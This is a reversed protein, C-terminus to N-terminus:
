WGSNQELEPNATLQSAPIPFLKHKESIPYDFKSSITDILRGTRVLDFWRHLEYALEWKREEFIANRFDDKNSFDTLTYDQPVANPDSNRARRRVQNVLDVAESTPGNMENLAEARMLLVDAYRLVYRNDNFANSTWYKDIHPHPFPWETYNLTDGTEPDPGETVYTVSKRYDNKDFNNFFNDHTWMWSNGLEPFNTHAIGSPALFLGFGQESVENERDFQVSFIHEKGNESAEAFVQNYDEFLGYVDSAIVEQCKDAAMQYYTQADEVYEREPYVANAQESALTLYVKALLAKAAGKTARAKEDASYSVPLEPEAAQLDEIILSYVESAPTRAKELNELNTTEETELPVGGWLRVMNFYHLARLFRAEAVLRARLDTNMDTNPVREIVANARNVADFISGWLNSFFGLDADYSYNDLQSRRGGRGTAQDAPYMVIWPFYRVYYRSYDGGLGDYAHTVAAIAHDETQYFNGPTVASTPDQELMSDCSALLCALLACSVFTLILYLKDMM